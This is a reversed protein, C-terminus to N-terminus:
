VAGSHQPQISAVKRAAKVCSLCLLAHFIYCMGDYAHMCLAFSLIDSLQLLISRDRAHLAVRCAVGQQQVTDSRARGLSCHVGQRYLHIGCLRLFHLSSSQYGNFALCLTRMLTSTRELV